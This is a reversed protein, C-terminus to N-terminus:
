QEGLALRVDDDPLDALVVDRIVVEQQLACCIRYVERFRRCFHFKSTHAARCIDEVALEEGMHAHIYEIASQLSTRPMEDEQGEKGLYSLLSFFVATRTAEGAEGEGAVSARRLLREIEEGDEKRVRTCAVSAGEGLDACLAATPLVSLLTTLSAADLFLKSRDYLAPDNPVTYHYAEGGIFCLTGARLPYMRDRTVVQGEGEHVFLLMPDGSRHWIKYLPDRGRERLFRSTM